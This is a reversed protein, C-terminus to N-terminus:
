QNTSRNHRRVFELRSSINKSHLLVFSRTHVFWAVEGCVHKISPLPDHRRLSYILIQYYVFLWVLICNFHEHFLSLRDRNLYFDATNLELKNLSTRYPITAFYRFVISFRKFGLGLIRINNVCGDSFSNTWFFSSDRKLHFHYNIIKIPKMDKSFFESTLHQCWWLNVWSLKNCLVVTWILSTAMPSNRQMKFVLGNILVVFTDERFCTCLVFDINWCKRSKPHKKTRAKWNLVFLFGRKGNFYVNPIKSYSKHTQNRASLEGRVCCYVPVWTLHSPGSESLGPNDVETMVCNNSNIDFIARGTWFM